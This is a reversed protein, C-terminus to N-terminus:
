FFKLICFKLTQLYLAVHLESELVGCDGYEDMTHVSFRSHLRKKKAITLDELFVCCALLVSVTIKRNCKHITDVFNEHLPHNRSSIFGALESSKYICLLSNSFQVVLAM